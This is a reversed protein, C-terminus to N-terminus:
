VGLTPPFDCMFASKSLLLFFFSHQYAAGLLLCVTALLQSQLFVFFNRRIQLYKELLPSFLCRGKKNNKKGHSTIKGGSVVERAGGNGEDKIDRKRLLREVRDALELRDATWFHSHKASEASLLSFAQQGCFRLLLLLAFTNPSFPPLFYPSPPLHVPSFSCFYRTIPQWRTIM